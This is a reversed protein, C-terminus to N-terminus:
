GVLFGRKRNLVWDSIREGRSRGPTILSWHGGKDTRAPLARDTFIDTLDTLRRFQDRCKGPSLPSGM